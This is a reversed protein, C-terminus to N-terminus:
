HIYDKAETIRQKLKPSPRLKVVRRAKIIAPEMTKPNRGLREKKDRLTFVGFRRIAVDSGDGLSKAIVNLTDDVIKGSNKLTIGCERKVVKSLADRTITKRKKAAMIGEFLKNYLFVTAYFGMCGCLVEARM